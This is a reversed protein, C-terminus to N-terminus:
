QLHMPVDLRGINHHHVDAEKPNVEREEPVWLTRGDECRHKTRWYPEKGGRSSAERRTLCPEGEEEKGRTIVVARGM